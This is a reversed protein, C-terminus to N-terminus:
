QHIVRVLEFSELKRLNNVYGHATFDTRPWRLLYEAGVGAFYGIWNRDLVMDLLNDLIPPRGEQHATQICQM